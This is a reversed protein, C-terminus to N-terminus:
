KKIIENAVTKKGVGVELRVWIVFCEEFLDIM